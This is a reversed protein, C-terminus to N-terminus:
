GVNRLIRKTTYARYWYWYACCIITDLRGRPGRRVAAFGRGVGGKRYLFVVIIVNINYYNSAEQAQNKPGAERSPGEEMYSWSYTPM